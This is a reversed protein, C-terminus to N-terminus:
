IIREDSFKRTIANATLLLILGVISKFLGVTTAAAYDANVIGQWYVYTDIIQSVDTVLSNSMILIQDFGANLIGPTALIFQVFVVPAISPLTIYLIQKFKNAGDIVASEYLEPNISTIAALYLVTGFGVGKWIDTFVLIGWFLKPEGLWLVPADVLGLSLLAQNVPGQLSLVEMWIGAAVAWSIFFPLYSITQTVRKFIKNKVENFLLALIIPAPFGFVLKLLSICITNRMLMPFSTSTFFDIFNDLGVWESKLIGEVINFDTFAILVGYMPYYCFIIYFIVGPITFLYLWKNTRIDRAIRRIWGMGNEVESSM